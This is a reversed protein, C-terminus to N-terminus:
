SAGQSSNPGELIGLCFLDKYEGCHSFSPNERVKHELEKKKKDAKEKLVYENIHPGAGRAYRPSALEGSMQLQKLSAGVREVAVKPVESSGQHIANRAVPDTATTALHPIETTVTHLNTSGRVFSRLDAIVHGSDTRLPAGCGPRGFPFYYEPSQSQRKTKKKDSAQDQYHFSSEQKSQNPCLYSSEQKSQNPYLYSEQKSKDPYHYTATEQQTQQQHHNGHSVHQLINNHLQDHTQLNGQTLPSIRGNSTTLEKKMMPSHPLSLKLGPVQSPNIDVHRDGGTGDDRVQSRVNLLQELYAKSITVTGELERNVGGRAM